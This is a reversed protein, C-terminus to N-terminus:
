KYGVVMLIKVTNQEGRSIMSGTYFAFNIYYETSHILKNDQLVVNKCCIQVATNPSYYQTGINVTRGQPSPTKVSWIGSENNKTAFIEVYKYNAVSDSLTIDGLTGGANVGDYLVVANNSFLNNCYIDGDIELSKEHSPFKNIGVSNKQTDIFLPFVGKGLTIEKSYLGGLTDTVVINFVYEKNKDTTLTTTESDKITTLSNYSGNVEKYQYQVVVSNKGNLYAYDSEVKLYTTDEYNNLRYLMIQATPTKYELITIKTENRAINGRSDTVTSVLTLDSASDVTGFDVYGSSATTTKTVNNLTFTHNLLSAGKKFTPATFSVRLTSKNQVIHQNNGTVSVVSSNTDQYTVTGLTPNANVIYLTKSLTSHYTTGNLVTKVLFIVSRSNATTTANRLINREAETLNFTYTTGNKDIDRYAIDDSAGTLSICAQLSTVNDGGLNSYTITPNQEDNFDTADKILAQRAINTLTLSTSATLTGGGSSNLVYANGSTWSSSIDITKTGDANHEIDNFIIASALTLTTATRFDYSPVTVAKQVGNCSIYLTTADYDWAGYALEVPSHCKVTVSVNSTNNINNYSTESAEISLYYGRAM